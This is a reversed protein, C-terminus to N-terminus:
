KDNDDDDDDDHRPALLSIGSGKEGRRGITWPSQCTKLAADRIRVYNSYTHELQDDQKTPGYTPNWLLVDSILNDRSRWNHGVHRTLRVQITKTISAPPPITPAKHPTAALVQEINSAANKHLQRRAEEEVTKNIIYKNWKKTDILFRMPFKLSYKGQKASIFYNVLTCTWSSSLQMESRAFAMPFPM